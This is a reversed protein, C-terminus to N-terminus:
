QTTGNHANCTEGAIFCAPWGPYTKALCTIQFLSRCDLEGCFWTVSLVTFGLLSNVDLSKWFRSYRPTRTRFHPGGQIAAKIVSLYTRLRKWFCGGVCSVTAPVSKWLLWQNCLGPHPLAKLHRCRLLLTAEGILIVVSDLLPKM